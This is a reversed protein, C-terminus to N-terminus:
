QKLASQLPSALPSSLERLRDLCKEAQVKQNLALFCQGLTYLVRDNQPHKETERMLLEAARNAEGARLLAAALNVSVDPNDPKMGKMREYAEAAQSYRGGSFLTRGLNNLAEPFVPNLSLAREFLEIARSLEGTQEMALGYNNFFAAKDGYGPDIDLVRGYARVAEENQGGVALIDGIRHYVAAMVPLQMRLTQNSRGGVLRDAYFFARAAAPKEDLAYLALGLRALSGAEPRISVSTQLEAVAERLKGSRSLAAGYLEHARASAPSSKVLEGFMKEEDKWLETLRFSFVLCIVSAVLVGWRLGRYRTLPVTLFVAVGALPLVLYRDAMFYERLAVVGSVPSIAIAYFLVAGSVWRAKGRLVFAAFFLALLLFLMSFFAPNMGSPPPERWISYGELGLLRLFGTGLAFVPETLRSREATQSFVSQTSLNVGIVLLSLFWYHGKRLLSKMFTAFSDIRNTVLGDTLMLLAPFTVAVPKSLLAAGFALTTYFERHFRREESLWVQLGWLVGAVALLNDRSSVWAISEVQVPHVAYLLAASVAGMIPFAEAKEHRRCIQLGILLVLHANLAHIVANVLHMWVSSDGFIQFDLWFTMFTLPEWNGAPNKALAFALAKLIDPQRLAPNDLLFAADDLRFFGTQLTGLGLAFALLSPM